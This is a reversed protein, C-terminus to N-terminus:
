AADRTLLYASRLLAPSQARVFATYELDSM